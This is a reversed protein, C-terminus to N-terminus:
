MGYKRRLEEFLGGNMGGQWSGRRQQELQMQSQLMQGIPDNGQRGMPMQPMPAQQKPAFMGQAMNVAGMAEMAPKAYGMAQQAGGLLGATTGQGVAGAAGGAGTLANGLTSGEVAGSTLYAGIPNAAVGGAAGLGGGIGSAAGGAAAAGGAGALLGPLAAGGFGLGGGLLAGQLPNKKNMAAGAVAGLAPLMWFM